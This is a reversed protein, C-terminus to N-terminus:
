LCGSCLGVGCSSKTLARQQTGPRRSVRALITIRKDLRCLPCRDVEPLPGHAKHFPVVALRMKGGLQRRRRVVEQPRAVRGRVLRLGFLACDVRRRRALYGNAAGADYRRAILVLLVPRGAAVAEPGAPRRRRRVGAHAGPHRRGVRYRLRGHIRGVRRGHAGVSGRKAQRHPRSRRAARQRQRRRPLLRGFVNPALAPSLRRKAQRRVGAVAQLAAHAAAQSFRAVQAKPQHTSPPALAALPMESPMM